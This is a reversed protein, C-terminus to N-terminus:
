GDDREAEERPTSTCHARPGDGVVVAVGNLLFLTASDAASGAVNPLSHITPYGSWVVRTGGEQNSTWNKKLCFSFDTTM